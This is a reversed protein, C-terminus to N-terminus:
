LLTLKDKTVWRLLLNIMGVIAAAGEPNSSIFQRVADGAVSPLLPAILLAFNFLATKSKFIPKM